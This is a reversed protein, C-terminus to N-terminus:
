CENELVIRVANACKETCSPNAPNALLERCIISGGHQQKFQEALEQVRKYNHLKGVRDGATASGSRLGEIMFMASCCGCVERMSGMGGGFSASLKLAREEEIGYLGACAGFVAQACNFGRGHLERAEQVRRDIEQKTM